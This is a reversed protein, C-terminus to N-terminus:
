SFRTMNEKEEEFKLFSFRTM